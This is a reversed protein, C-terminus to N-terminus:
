VNGGLVEEAMKVKEEKKDFTIEPWWKLRVGKNM